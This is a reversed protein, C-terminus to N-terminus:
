TQPLRDGLRERTPAHTVQGEHTLLSGQTIDDALDINLTAPGDGDRKLVNELLALVNRAYLQSADRALTAPLNRRGVIKVGQHIIDEGAQSLECNGGQEVALDVIVSGPRMSEVMARTMLTPAKRGPVLATTVVVDAQAVHRAVIEQQKALYEASVQRAYGGQGEGSEESEPLPIFKAGLSEIQEKVAARIDSAEVVAGLRRATAIAQLGAVGAGMIVVRAPKVTGAATMLLPFHKPLECAAILVAKYGAISAQSSLADMKQARTTRPILEMSLSTVRKKAFEVIMTDSDHPSAFGVYASGERFLATENTMDTDVSAEITPPRVKAVLDAAGYGASAESVITAGVEEYAADPCGSAVGASTEVCVACGLQILRKITEPTAAVRLEEPHREKPIFIQM